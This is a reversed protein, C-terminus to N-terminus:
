DIIDRTDNQNHAIYLCGMLTRTQKEYPPIRGTWGRLNATYHKVLEVDNVAFLVM